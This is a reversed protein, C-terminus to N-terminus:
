IIFWKFLVVIPFICFMLHLNQWSSCIIFLFFLQKTDSLILASVACVLTGWLWLYHRNRICVTWFDQLCTLEQRSDSSDSSDRSDSRDSSDSIDFSYLHWIYKCVVSKFYIPLTLDWVLLLLFFINRAWKVYNKKVLLNVLKYALSILVLFKCGKERNLYTKPNIVGGFYPTEVLM